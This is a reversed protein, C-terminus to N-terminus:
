SPKMQLSLVSMSNYCTVAADLADEVDCPVRAERGGYTVMLVNDADFLM